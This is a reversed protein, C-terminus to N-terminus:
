FNKSFRGYKIPGASRLFSNEQITRGQERSLQVSQNNGSSVDALSGSQLQRNRLDYRELLTQMLFQHNSVLHEERVWKKRFQEFNVWELYALDDGAKAAKATKEGIFVCYFNTFLAHKTGATKSSAIRGRYVLSFRWPELELHTEEKLERVAADRYDNDFLPDLFGGPFRLKVKNPKRGLLVSYHKTDESYRIVAIDAVSFVIPHRTSVRNAM